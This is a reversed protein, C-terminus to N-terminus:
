YTKEGGHEKRLVYINWHTRGACVHTHPGGCSCPFDIRMWPSIAGAGAGGANALLEETLSATEYTGGTVRDSHRIDQKQASTAYTM